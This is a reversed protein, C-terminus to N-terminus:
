QLAEWIIPLYESGDELDSGDAQAANNKKDDILEVTGNPQIWRTSTMWNFVKLWGNNWTYVKRNMRRIIMRYGRNNTKRVFDVCLKEEDNLPVNHRWYNVWKNKPFSFHTKKIEIMEKTFKM